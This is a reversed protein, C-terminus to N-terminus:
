SYPSLETTMRSSFIHESFPMMFNILNPSILSLTIMSDFECTGLPFITLLYKQIKVRSKKGSINEHM